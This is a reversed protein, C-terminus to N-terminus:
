PTVELPATAAPTDENLPEVALGDIANPLHTIAIADGPNLDDGRVLVGRENEFPYSGLVEVNIRELLKDENIRYIINNGYIASYPLAIVEDVPPRIIEISHIEGPRNDPMEEFRFIGTIGEGRAQGAIRELRLNQPSTSTQIQARM